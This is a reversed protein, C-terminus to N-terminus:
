HGRVNWCVRVEGMRVEKVQYPGDADYAWKVTIADALGACRAGNEIWVRPLLGKMHDIDIVSYGNRKLVIVAAMLAHLRDLMIDNMPRLQGANRGHTIIPAHQTAANM